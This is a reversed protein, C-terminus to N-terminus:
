FENEESKETEQNKSTKYYNKFDQKYKKTMKKNSSLKSLITEFLVNSYDIGNMGDYLEFANLFLLIKENAYFSYFSGCFNKLNPIKAVFDNLLNQALKEEKTTEIKECFLLAMKRNESFSYSNDGEILKLNCKALMADLDNEDLLDLYNM